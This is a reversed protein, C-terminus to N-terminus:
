CYLSIRVSADHVSRDCQARQRLRHGHRRCSAFVFSRDLTTAATILGYHTLQTSADRWRAVSLRDDTLRFHKHIQTRNRMQWVWLRKRTFALQRLSVKTIIKLVIYKFVGLSNQICITTSKDATLNKKSFTYKTFFLWLYHYTINYMAKTRNLTVRHLTV